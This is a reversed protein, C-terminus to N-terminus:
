TSRPTTRARRFELPPAAHPPGDVPIPRTFRIWEPTIQWEGEPCRSQPGSRLGLVHETLEIEARFRFLRQWVGFINPTSGRGMVNWWGLAEAREAAFAGADFACVKVGALLHATERQRAVYDATSLRLYPGFIARDATRRVENRGADDEHAAQGQAISVLLTDGQMAAMTARRYDFLRPEDFWAPAPKPMKRAAAIVTRDMALAMLASILEPRKWLVRSLVTQARLDEWAGPDGRRARELASATLLRGIHLHAGLNPMPAGAGRDIDIEWVIAGGSLLHARLADVGDPIPPAPDITEEPKALQTRVYGAITEGPSPRLGRTFDVGAATAVRELERAGESTPQRPYRDRAAQLTGLGMPWERRGAERRANGRVLIVLLAAVTIAVLVAIALKKMM